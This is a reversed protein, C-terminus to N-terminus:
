TGYSLECIGYGRDGECTVEVVQDQLGMSAPNLRSDHPEWREGTVKLPGQRMGHIVGDKGGYNGGRLHVTPPLRRMRVPLVKGSELHVDVELGQFHENPGFDFRRVIRAVKEQAGGKADSWRVLGEFFRPTEDQEQTQFYWLYFSQLQVCVWNHRTGWNAEKFWESMDAVVAIGPRVGWSRDRVAYHRDPTLPIRRGDMALWGDVRGVHGFHSWDWVRRGNVVSVLRAPEMAKFNAVYNLEASVGYDNEDVRFRWRKMPEVVSAHLPGVDMVDRDGGVLERSARVNVQVEPTVICAFGDSVGMNPYVGIGQSMALSGDVAQMSFYFRDFWRPDPEVVNDLTGYNQHIMLDDLRPM